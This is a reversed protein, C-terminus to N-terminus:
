VLTAKENTCHIKLHVSVVFDRELHEAVRYFPLILVTVMDRVEMYDRIGWVCIIFIPPSSM